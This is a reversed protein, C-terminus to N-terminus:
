AEASEQMRKWVRRVRWGLSVLLVGFLMAYAGIWWTISIAGATPNVLVLVGLAISVLGAAAMLWENNIEKRLRVATAIEFVGTMLCWVSILLLLLNATFAPYVFTIVGFVVGLLGEILVVWWDQDQERMRWGLITAFAGDVLFLFGLLMVLAGFTVGPLTFALVAFAISVLGRSVLVWWHSALQRLM